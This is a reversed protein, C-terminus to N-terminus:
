FITLFHEDLTGDTGWSGLSKYRNSIYTNFRYYIEDPDSLDWQDSYHILESYEEFCVSVVQM